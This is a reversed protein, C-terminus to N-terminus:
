SIKVANKQPKPVFPIAVSFTTGKNEESTFWIEGGNLQLILKVIYLGLGTGQMVKAKANTARFMKSFVKDQQDKPIGYGTDNIVILFTNTRQQDVSINMTITGESPTYNVANSILQHFISKLLYLDTEIEPLDGSYIEKFNIKKEAITHDYDELVRKAVKPLSLKEPKFPMRDLELESVTLLDNTTGVIQKSANYLEKIYKRQLDTLNDTQQQMLIEANWNIATLPGRMQHSALSLFQTKVRDIEKEYTVDHVTGVMRLPKHENDYFTKSRGHLWLITGNDPNVFRFDLISSGEELSEKIFNKVNEKDEEHVRSLMVDNNVQVSQPTLAFLRYMEDTWTFANAIIDWEWSGVHAIQQAESHQREAEKLQEILSGQSSIDHLVAVVEQPNGQSDSFLSGNASVRLNTGDKKIINCQLDTINGDVLIKQFGQSINERDNEAVFDVAKRGVVEQENEWGFIQLTKKDAKTITGHLDLVIIAESSLASLNQLREYHSEPNQPADSM